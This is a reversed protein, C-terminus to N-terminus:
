ILYKYKTNEYSFTDSNIYNFLKLIKKKIIISNLLALFLFYIISLSLIIMTGFFSLAMSLYIIILLFAIFGFTNLIKYYRPFKRFILIEPPNNNSFVVSLHLSYPNVWNVILNIEENSVSGKFKFINLPVVNLIDGPEETIGKLRKIFEDKQLKSKISYKKKTLWM